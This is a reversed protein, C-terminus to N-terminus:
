QDHTPDIVIANIRGETIGYDYCGNCGTMHEPMPGLAVFATPSLILNSDSGKTGGNAASHLNAKRGAPVGRNMALDQEAAKRTWAPSYRGTPYTLRHNWYEEESILREADTPAHGDTFQTQISAGSSSGIATATFITTQSKGGANLGGSSSLKPMIASINLIGNEDASGQITAVIGASGTKVVITVGERPTWSGGSFVITEGPMYSIKDAVLTPAEQITRNTRQAGAFASVFLIIALTFLVFGVTRRLSRCNM